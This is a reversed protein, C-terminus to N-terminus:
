VSMAFPFVYEHLTVRDAQGRLAGDSVVITADVALGGERHGALPDFLV